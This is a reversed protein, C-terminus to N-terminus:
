WESLNVAECGAEIADGMQQLDDPPILGGFAILDSGPVGRLKAGALERAFELVLQQQSAPLRHLLESIEHDIKAM